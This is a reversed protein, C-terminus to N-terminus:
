VLLVHIIMGYFILSLIQDFTSLPKRKFISNYKYQYISDKDIIDVKKPHRNITTYVTSLILYALFAASFFHVYNIGCSLGWMIVILDILIALILILLLKAVFAIAKISIEEKSLKGNNYDLLADYFKGVTCKISSGRILGILSWLFDIIALFLIM